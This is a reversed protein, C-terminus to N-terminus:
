ENREVRAGFIFLNRDQGKEKNRGDNVFTISLVKAGGDSSVKFPYEQWDTSHVVAEGIEEADLEVIILPFIENAQTGKASIYIISEGEPLQLVSDITGTWYMRGNEYVHQGDQSSGLWEQQSIASKAPIKRKFDNIKELRASKKLNFEGLSEKQSYSNLEKLIMKRYEWLGKTVLFKYLREYNIATEPTAKIAIEFDSAYYMIAPYIYDAFWSRAGLVYRLRELAFNKDQEDLEKWVTLLSHGVLYNVRFNYPDAEIAKIFDGKAKKIEELKLSHKYIDTRVKGLAHWYEPDFPNIAVSRELLGRARELLSLGDKKNQAQKILFSALKEYYEANFPNLHIARMYMIEAKPRSDNDELKKANTFYLEAVFPLVIAVAFIVSLIVLVINTFIRKM